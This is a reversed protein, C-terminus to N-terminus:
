GVERDRKHFIGECKAPANDYGSPRCLFVLRRPKRLQCAEKLGDCNWLFWALGAAAANCCVDFYRGGLEQVFAKLEARTAM